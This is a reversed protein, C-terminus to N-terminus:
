PMRWTEGDWRFGATTCAVGLALSGRGRLCLLLRGTRRQARIPVREKLAHRVVRRAPEGLARFADWLRPLRVVVRPLASESPARQAIEEAAHDSTEERDDLRRRLPDLSACGIHWGFSVGGPYGLTQLLLGGGAITAADYYRLPKGCWACAPKPATM